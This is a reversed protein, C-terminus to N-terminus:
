NGDSRTTNKLAIHGRKAGWPMPGPEVHFTRTTYHKQPREDHESVPIPSDNYRIALANDSMKKVPLGM